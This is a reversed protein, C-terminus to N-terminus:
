LIVLRVSKVWERIPRNVTGNMAQELSRNKEGGTGGQKRGRVREKARRELLRSCAIGNM